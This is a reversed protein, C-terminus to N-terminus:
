MRTHALAHAHSLVPYLLSIVSTTFALSLPTTYTNTRANAHSLLSYFM